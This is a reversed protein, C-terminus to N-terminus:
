LLVCECYVMSVVCLVLVVVGGYCLVDVCVGLLTCVCCMVYMRVGVCRFLSLMLLCSIAM